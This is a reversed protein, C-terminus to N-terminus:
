YWGRLAVHILFATYGYALGFGGLTIVVGLTGLFSEAIPHPREPVGADRLRNRVPRPLDWPVFGQVIAKTRGIQNVSSNGKEKEYEERVRAYVASWKQKWRVLRLYAKLAAFAGFGLLLASAVNLIVLWWYVIVRVAHSRIPRNSQTATQSEDAFVLHPVDVVRGTFTPIATQSNILYVSFAAEDGANLLPFDCEVASTSQVAKANFTFTQPSTRNVVTSLVRVSAPFEIRLPERIDEQKVAAGGSNKLIFDMRLLSQVKEGHFEMKIDPHIGGVDVSVLNSIGILTCTLEKKRAALTIVLSSAAIFAAMLPVWQLFKAVGERGSTSVKGEV